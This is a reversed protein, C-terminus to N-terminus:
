NKGWVLKLAEYGALVAAKIHLVRSLEYRVSM